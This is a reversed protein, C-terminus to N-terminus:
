ANVQDFFSCISHGYTRCYCVQTIGCQPTVLDMPIGYTLKGACHPWAFLESALGKDHGQPKWVHTVGALCALRASDM